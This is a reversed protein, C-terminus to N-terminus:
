AIAGERLGALSRGFPQRFTPVAFPTGTADSPLRHRLDSIRRRQSGCSCEGLAGSSSEDRPLAVDRGKVRCQRVLDRAPRCIARTRRTYTTRPRRLFQDSAQMRSSCPACRGREGGSAVAPGPRWCGARATSIRRRRACGCFRDELSALSLAQRRPLGEAGQHRRRAARPKGRRRPGPSTFPVSDKCMTGTPSTRRIGSGSSFAIRTFASGPWEFIRHSRFLM